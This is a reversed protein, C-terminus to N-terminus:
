WDVQRFHQFLMGHMPTDGRRLADIGAAVPDLVRAAGDEESLPPLVKANPRMQSIWGTDAASVFVGQPALEGAITRTLMNLAAKAMNTHPHESGKSKNADFIGEPSTVNVVFAGGLTGRAAAARLNPLLRSTLLFPAVSNVVLVEMLELLPVDDLPATWSTRTRLDLPEGHLDRAGTPFLEEKRLEDEYDSPLVPVVALASSLLAAVPNAHADGPAATEQVAAEARRLLEAVRTPARDRKSDPGLEIALSRRAHNRQRRDADTQLDREAM